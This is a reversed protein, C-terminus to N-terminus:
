GSIFLLRGVYVEKLVHLPEFVYYNFDRAEVIYSTIIVGTSSHVMIERKPPMRTSNKFENWLHQRQSLVGTGEQDCVLCSKKMISSPSSLSSLTM